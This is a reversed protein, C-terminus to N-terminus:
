MLSSIVTFGLDVIPRREFLLVRSSGGICLINSVSPAREKAAAASASQFLSGALTLFTAEKFLKLFDILVKRKLSDIVKYKITFRKQDCRHRSLASFFNKFKNTNNNQQKGTSSIMEQNKM